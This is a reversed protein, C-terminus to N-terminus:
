KKIRSRITIDKFLSDYISSLGTDTRSLKDKFDEVAQVQEETDEKSKYIKSTQGSLTKNKDKNAVDRRASILKFSIIDKINIGESM